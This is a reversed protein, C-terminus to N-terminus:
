SIPWSNAGTTPIGGHTYCIGILTVDVMCKGDFWPDRICTLTYTM